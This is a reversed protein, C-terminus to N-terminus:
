IREEKGLIGIATQRLRSALIQWNKRHHKVMCEFGDNQMAKLILKGGPHKPVYSTVDFVINCIVIAQRSKQLRQVDQRTMTKLQM